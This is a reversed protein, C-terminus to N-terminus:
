CVEKKELQQYLSNLYARYKNFEKLSCLVKGDETIFGRKVLHDRFHRSEFLKHLHPDHLAEYEIPTDYANPDYLNFDLEPYSQVIQFFVIFKFKYM